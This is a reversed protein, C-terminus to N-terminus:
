CTLHWFRDGDLRESFTVKETGYFFIQKQHRQKKNTKWYGDYVFYRQPWLTDRQPFNFHDLKQDFLRETCNGVGPRGNHPVPGTLKEPLVYHAVSCHLSALASFAILLTSMALPM